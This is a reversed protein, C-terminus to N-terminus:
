FENEHGCSLCVAFALYSGARHYPEYYCDGGCLECKMRSAVEADIEEVEWSPAGYEYEPDQFPMTIRM